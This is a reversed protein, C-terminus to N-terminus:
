AGGRGRARIELAAGGEPHRVAAGMGPRLDSVSAPLGRWVVQTSASLPVQVQGGAFLALTVSSGDVASITGREVVVRVRGFARVVRAAGNAPRVALAVFGARLDTVAAPRGNLRVRTNADLPVTVASGDLEVLVLAAASASQVVGRDIVPPGGRSGTAATPLVLAVAAALAAASRIGTSIRM